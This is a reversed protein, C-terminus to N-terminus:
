REYDYNRTGDSNMVLFIFKFGLSKCAKRKLKNLHKAYQYTFDSKVEIILNLKPIYIDPHYVRDKGKYRYAISPVDSGLGCVIDKPEINKENIIYDLAYNEFGQVKIQRKGLRYKKYNYASVLNKEFLERNQLAHEVGYRKLMTKARKRKSKPTAVTLCGHKAIQKEMSVRPACTPCSHLKLNGAYTEWVTGCELHKVKIKANMGQYKTLPKINKPKLYLDSFTVPSLLQRKASKEGMLCRCNYQTFYKATNSYTKGCSTCKCTLTNPNETLVEWSSEKLKLRKLIKNIFAKRTGNEVKNRAALEHRCETSCTQRGLMMFTSGCIVCTPYGYDLIHLALTLSTTEKKISILKQAMRSPMFECLTEFKNVRKGISLCLKKYYEHYSKM